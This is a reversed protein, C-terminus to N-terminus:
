LLRRLEDVKSALDKLQARVARVDTGEIAMAGSTYCFRPSGVPWRNLRACAV